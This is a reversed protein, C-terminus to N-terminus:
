QGSTSGNPGPSNGQGRGLLEDLIPQAAEQLANYDKYGLVDGIVEAGAVNQSPVPIGQESLSWATIIEALLADRMVDDIDGSAERVGEPTVALKVSARVKKRDRGKFDERYEVWAGSPLDIRPM